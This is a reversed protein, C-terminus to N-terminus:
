VEGSALGQKGGASGGGQLDIAGPSAARFYRAAIEAPSPPNVLLPILSIEDLIRPTLLHDDLGIMARDQGSYCAYGHPAMVLYGAIRVPDGPILIGERQCREIVETLTALAAANIRDQSKARDIEAGRHGFMLWFAGPNDRAFGIYADNLAHLQELAQPPAKALEAQQRHHLQRFGHETMADLLAAKDRFHRYVAAHSVGLEAALERLTFDPGNREGVIRLAAAVLANRLDRHHYGAKKGAGARVNM